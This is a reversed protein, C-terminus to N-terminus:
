FRRRTRKKMAKEFDRQPLKDLRGDRGPSQQDETEPDLDFEDPYDERFKSIMKEFSRKNPPEPGRWVLEAIARTDQDMAKYTYVGITKKM